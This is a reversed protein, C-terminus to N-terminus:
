GRNESMTVLAGAEWFFVYALLNSSFVTSTAGNALIGITTVLMVAGFRRQMETRGSWVARWALAVFTGLTVLLAAIGAVGLQVAYSLYMNDSTIPERLFRLPPADTTGLGNGWPREFFALLGASWDKVHSESSATQFTLTEWAFKLVSPVVAMVLLVAAVTLGITAVAKHPRRLVVFLIAVQAFCILITMRTITLLLGVWIILYAARVLLPHQRGRAFAWATASPMLLLFPLAFGQSHLFVSGARRVPVGGM